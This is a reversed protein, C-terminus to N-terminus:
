ELGAMTEGIEKELDAFSANIKVYLEDSGDFKDSKALKELDSTVDYLVEFGMTAATGKLKHALLFTDRSDNKDIAAKLESITGPTKDLFMEMLSKYLQRNNNIREMLANSDLIVSEKVPRHEEISIEDSREIDPEVLWQKLKEALVHPSVPKAVYDSMGAELCKDKQGAMAHATMAIIPLAGKSKLVPDESEQWKRIESTAKCGDMVPMECDMLVLDFPKKALSDIAEKGNIAIEARYGFKDLIALAVQQNIDNDDVVLIRFDKKRSEALSHRTVLNMVENADQSKGGHVAELCEKLVSEKIPKTLYAAFGKEALRTADGRNGLSTMLILKIGNLLPDEKIMEGLFEGDMKTMQMDIIAIDYPQGNNAAQRLIELATNGDPAEEFLSVRWPATIKRLCFRNTKNDDVILLRCNHLDPTKQIARGTDREVSQQKLFRATFWFTSGAGEESEVEIDGGMLETLHKAISLGLGTGGFRRTTSRDAQSFPEFLITLVKEPIGIGTDSISFRILTDNDTDEQATVLISVEGHETFKIANNVLNIIVQRLRGPDGILMSPVEPDVLCFFDLDKQQARLALMDSTEEITHRLDFDLQELDFKGAQIKSFDLIDNIVSLLIESSSIVTGLYEEQESDLRTDLLLGSMGIIGNLPTRIEHSMMALFDSKAQDSDEAKKRLKDHLILENEIREAMLNFTDGLEGFEDCSLGRVRHQLDGETFRNTSEQLIDLSGRFRNFCYSAFLLALGLGSFLLLYIYMQYRQSTELEHRQGSVVSSIAKEVFAANQVLGQEAAGLASIELMHTNDATPDYRWESIYASSIIRYKKYLALSKLHNEEFPGGAFLPLHSKVEEVLIDNGQLVERADHDDYGRVFANFLIIQQQFQMHMKLFVEAQEMQSILESDEKKENFALFFTLVGFLLIFMTLVIFGIEAMRRFTM